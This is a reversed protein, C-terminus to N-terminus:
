ASSGPPESRSRSNPRGDDGLAERSFPAAGAAQFDLLDLPQLGRQRIFKIAHDTGVLAARKFRASFLGRRIGHMFLRAWREVRGHRDGPFVGGLLYHLVGSSFHCDHALRLFYEHTVRDEPILHKVKLRPFVGFGLGIAVAAWSFADDGACFLREGRRDLFENFKLRKLLQQYSDAVRRTVALGAGWPICNGDEMNNSWLDRSACRLALRGLYSVLNRRPQVAFEAELKGAGIVGLYPHETLLRRATELYNAALVNDDDVYILIDGRSETIGRLRAPTLGLNLERIHRARPHWCLSFNEAFGTKSANDVLLLEWEEKPLTQADLAALVRRLYEPRPGHTCIIVSIFL